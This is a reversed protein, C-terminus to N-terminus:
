NKPKWLRCPERCNKASGGYKEHYWCLDHQDNNHSSSHSPTLSRQGSGNNPRSRSRSRSHQNKMNHVASVLQNIQREMTCLKDEISSNSTPKSAGVQQVINQVTVEAITDATTAAEDLTATSTALIARVHVPLQNMWLTRLVDDNVNTGGLRRMENLLFSPKNDGLSLDSFLKNMKAYDSDNFENLMADKLNAYKRGAPPDLVAKRVRQLIKSEIAGVVTNFRSDDTVINANQFQSEVQAFWIDPSESWFPPVKVSVRQVVNGNNGQDGDNNHPGGDNNNPMTVDSEFIDFQIKNFDSWNNM